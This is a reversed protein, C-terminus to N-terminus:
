WQFGGFNDDTDPPSVIDSDTNSEDTSEEVVEEVSTDDEREEQASQLVEDLIEVSEGNIEELKKQIDRLENEIKWWGDHLKPMEKALEQLNNIVYQKSEETVPVNNLIQIQTRTLNVFYEEEYIYGGNHHFLEERLSLLKDYESQFESWSENSDFYSLLSKSKSDLAAKLSKVKDHRWPDFELSVIHEVAIANHISKAVEPLTEVTAIIPFDENVGSFTNTLSGTSTEHNESEYLAKQDQEYADKYILSLVRVNYALVETSAKKSRNDETVKTVLINARDGALVGGVTREDVPIRVPVMGTSLNRIAVSDGLDREYLPVGPELDKLAYKNLIFEEDVIMGNRKESAKMPVFTVDSNLIPEGRPIFRELFLVEVEEEKGGQALSFLLMTCLIAVLTCIGIVIFKTRNNM